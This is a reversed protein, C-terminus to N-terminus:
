TNGPNLKMLLSPSHWDSIGYELERSPKYHIFQRGSRRCFRYQPWLQVYQLNEAVHMIRTTFTLKICPQLMWFFRCGERWTGMLCSVAKLVKKIWHDEFIDLYTCGLKEKQGVIVLKAGGGSHLESEYRGRTVGSWKKLVANVTFRHCSCPLM